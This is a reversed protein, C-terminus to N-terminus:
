RKPITKTFISILGLSDWRVKWSLPREIAHASVSIFYTLSIFYEALVPYRSIFCSIIKNCLLSEYVRLDACIFFNSQSTSSNVLAYAHALWSQYLDDNPLTTASFTPTGTYYQNLVSRTQIPKMPWNYSCFKSCSKQLWNSCRINDYIIVWIYSQDNRQIM